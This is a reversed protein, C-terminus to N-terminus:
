PSLLSPPDGTTMTARTVRKMTPAFLEARQGSVFPLTRSARYPSARGVACGGGCKRHWGSYAIGDVQSQRIHAEGAGPLAHTM